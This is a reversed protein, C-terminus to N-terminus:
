YKLKSPPIDWRFTVTILLSLVIEKQIANFYVDTKEKEFQHLLGITAFSSLCM